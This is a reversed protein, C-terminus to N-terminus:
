HSELIIVRECMKTIVFTEFEVIIMSHTGHHERFATTLTDPFNHFCCVLIYIDECRKSSQPKFLIKMQFKEMRVQSAALCYKRGIQNQELTIM